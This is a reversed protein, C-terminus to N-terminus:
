GSCRCNWSRPIWRIMPVSSPVITRPLRGERMLDESKRNMTWHWSLRDQKAEFWPMVHIFLLPRAPQAQWTWMALAAALAIVAVGALVLGDPPDM